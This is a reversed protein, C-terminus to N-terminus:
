PLRSVGHHQANLEVFAFEDGRCVDVACVGLPFSGRANLPVVLNDKPDFAVVEGERFAATKACAFTFPGCLCFEGDHGAAIDELAVGAKENIKIVAGAMVDRDPAYITREGYLMESIVDNAM